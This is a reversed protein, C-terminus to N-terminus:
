RKEQRREILATWGALLAELQLRFLKDPSRPAASRSAKLLPREAIAAQSARERPDTPQPHVLASGFALTEVSDLIPHTLSLPVGDDVMKALVYERAAQASSSGIGQARTMLPAANPHRLLAGRYNQVSTTVHKQWPATRSPRLHVGTELLVLRRVGHLIEDKDKFHHYLSAGNVGLEKGLRRISFADLGESDIIALAKLIAEDRDILPTKPRGM